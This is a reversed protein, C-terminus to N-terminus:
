KMFLKKCMEISSELRYEGQEKVITPLSIDPLDKMVEVKVQINKSEAKKLVFEFPKINSKMVETEKRIIDKVVVSKPKEEIKATPKEKDSNKKADLAMRKQEFIIRWWPVVLIWGWVEIEHDEDDEKYVMPDRHKLEKRKRGEDEIIELAEECV